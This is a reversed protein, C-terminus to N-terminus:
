PASPQVRTFSPPIRRGTPAVSVNHSSPATDPSRQRLTSPRQGFAKSYRRHASPKNSLTYLKEGAPLEELGATARRGDRTFASSSVSTASEDNNQVFRRAGTDVSSAAVSALSVHNRRLDARARRRLQPANAVLGRARIHAALRLDLRHHAVNQGITINVFLKITAAAKASQVSAM